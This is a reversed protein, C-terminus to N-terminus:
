AQSQNRVRVESQRIKWSFVTGSMMLSTKASWEIATKSSPSVPVYAFRSYQTCYRSVSKSKTLRSMSSSPM